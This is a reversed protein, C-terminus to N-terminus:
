AIHRVFEHFVSLRGILVKKVGRWLTLKRELWIVRLGKREHPLEERGGNKWSERPVMARRLEARKTTKMEIVPCTKRGEIGELGKTM